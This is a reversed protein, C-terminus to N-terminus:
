VEETEEGEEDEFEEDLSLDSHFLGIEGDETRHVFWFDEEGAACWCLVAETVQEEFEEELNHFLLFHDPVALNLDLPEATVFMRFIEGTDERLVDCYPYPVDDSELIELEVDADEFDEWDFCEAVAGVLEPLSEEISPM